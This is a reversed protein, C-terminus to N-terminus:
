AYNLNEGFNYGKIFSGFNIGILYSVSDTQSKSPLLSNPNVPKVTGLSDAAEGNSAVKGGKSSCAMAVACVAAVIFLKKTIM